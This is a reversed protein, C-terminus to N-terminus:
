KNKLYEGERTNIFVFILNVLFNTETLLGSM